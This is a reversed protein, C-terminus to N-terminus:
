SREFPSYQQRASHFIAFNCKVLSVIFFVTKLLVVSVNLYAFSKVVRRANDINQSHVNKNYVFSQKLPFYVMRLTWVFSCGPSSHPIKRIRVLLSISSTIDRELVTTQAFISKDRHILSTFNNERPLFCYQKLWEFIFNMDERWRTIDEIHKAKRHMNKSQKNPREQQSLFCIPALCSRSM